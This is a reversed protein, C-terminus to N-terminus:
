STHNHVFMCSLKPATAELYSNGVCYNLYDAYIYIDYNFLLILHRSDIKHSNQSELHFM